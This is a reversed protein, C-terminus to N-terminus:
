LFTCASKRAIQEYNDQPQFSMACTVSLSHIYDEQNSSLFNTSMGIALSLKEENPLDAM